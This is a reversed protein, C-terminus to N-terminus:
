KKWVHLIEGTYVVHVGLGREDYWQRQELPMKDLEFPSTYIKRCEIALDSEAFIPNGLETFETTLGAGKVKDEDRGSVTGLYQLEKRMSSPFHTITFYDNKDMFENTYRSTSVYVTVIPKNWLEGLTGWAITMLNMDGEKGAALEFWDDAFLKVPNGEIERPTIEQWSKQRMSEATEEVEPTVVEQNSQQGCSALMCTSLLMLTLKKIM